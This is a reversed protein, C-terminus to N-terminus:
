KRSGMRNELWKVVDIIYTHRKDLRVSISRRRFRTKGAWRSLERDVLGADSITRDCALFRRGSSLTERCWRSFAIDPRVCLGGDDHSTQRKSKEPLPDDFKAPTVYAVAVERTSTRDEFPWPRPELQDVVRRASSYGRKRDINEKKKWTSPTWFFLPLLLFVFTM